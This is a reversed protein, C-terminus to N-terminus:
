SVFQWMGCGNQSRALKRALTNQDDSCQEAQTYNAETHIGLKSGHIAVCSCQVDGQPSYFVAHRKVM